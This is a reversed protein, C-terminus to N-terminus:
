TKSSTKGRTRASHMLWKTDFLREHRDGTRMLNVIEALPRIGGRAGLATCSLAAAACSFELARDLPQTDLLAYAFAGHFIDGAGTTDVAAVRFAPTYHFEAGDWALVGNKGLTAGVVKCGFRTAIEPLSQTLDALGTLRQPFERSSILFDVYELLEEVGPYLNDLDATVPVGAQQAWRAPVVAPASPHGDVHLLRARTVWDQRLEQPDLDLRSDRKWLITREGSSQDVLIFSQQSECAPVEILHAETGEREFESRHVRGAPDDGIKGVYRTRLGWRQCAVIAGATQGGPFTQSSLIEM